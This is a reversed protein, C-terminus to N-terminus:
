GRRRKWQRFWQPWATEPLEGRQVYGQFTRFAQMIKREAFLRAKRVLFWIGAFVLAFTLLFTGFFGANSVTLGLGIIGFFIFLFLSGWEALWLWRTFFGVQGLIFARSLTRPLYREAMGWSTDIAKHRVLNGVVRRPRSNRRLPPENSWDNNNMM